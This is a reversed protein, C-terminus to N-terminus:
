SPRYPVVAHHDIVVGLHHDDDHDISAVREASRHRDVHLELISDQMGLEMGLPTINATYPHHKPKLQDWVKATVVRDAAM